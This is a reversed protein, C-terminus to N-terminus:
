KFCISSTSQGKSPESVCNRSQEWLALNVVLKYFLVPQWLSMKIAAWSRGDTKVDGVTVNAWEVKQWCDLGVDVGPANHRVPEDHLVTLFHNQLCHVFAPIFFIRERTGLRKQTLEVHRLSIINDWWLRVPTVSHKDIISNMSNSM